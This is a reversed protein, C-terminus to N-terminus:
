LPERSWYISRFSPMRILFIYLFSMGSWYSTCFYRTRGVFPILPSHEVLSFARTSWYNRHSSSAEVITTLTSSWYITFYWTQDNVPILILIEVPLQYAFVMSSLHKSIATSSRYFPRGNLSMFFFKGVLLHYLGVTSAWHCSSELSLTSGKFYGGDGFM